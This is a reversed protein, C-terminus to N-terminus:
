VNEKQKRKNSNEELISQVIQQVQNRLLSMDANNYIVFDTEFDDVHTETEHLFLEKTLPEGKDRIRSLRIDDDCIIKITHGKDKAYEFENPQRVDTIVNVLLEDVPQKNIEEIKEDVLRIWVNEDIERMKQGVKQLKDRNKLTSPFLEYTISKVSDGFAHKFPIINDEKLLEERILTYVTDKGSRMKGALSITIRGTHTNSSM